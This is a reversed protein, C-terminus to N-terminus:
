KVTISIKYALFQCLFNTFWQFIMVLFRAWLSLPRFNRCRGGVLASAAALTCYVSYACAPLAHLLCCVSGAARLLRHAYGAQSAARATAAHAGALMARLTPKNGTNIAHSNPAFIAFLPQKKPSPPQPLFSLSFSPNLTEITEIM